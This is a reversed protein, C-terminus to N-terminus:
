IIGKLLLFIFDPLTVFVAALLKLNLTWCLFSSSDSARVVRKTGCWKGFSQGQLGFTVRGLLSKNLEHEWLASTHSLNRSPESYLLFPGSSTSSGLLHHARNAEGADQLCISISRCMGQCPGSSLFPYPPFAFISVLSPFYVKIVSQGFRTQVISSFLTVFCHFFLNNPLFSTAVSAVVTWCNGARHKLGCQGCICESEKLFHVDGQWHTFLSLQEM